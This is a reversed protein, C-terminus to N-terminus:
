FGATDGNWHTTRATAGAFVRNEEGLLAIREDQERPIWGCVAALFWSRWRPVDSSADSSASVDGNMM